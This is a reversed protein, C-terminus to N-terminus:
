IKFNDKTVSAVVLGVYSDEFIFRDPLIGEIKMGSRKMLKIMSENVEMTGATIMRFNLNHFIVRIALGWARTAVGTGWVSKDGIMISLDVINNQKNVTLGMNGVHREEKGLLEIALFLNDSKKQHEYYDICSELTHFLHRQESYRMVDIDNLWSLYNRNLHRKAFPVIQILEDKSKPFELILKNQM